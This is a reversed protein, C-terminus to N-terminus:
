GPLLQFWQISWCRYSSPVLMLGIVVSEAKNVNLNGLGSPKPISELLPPAYSGALFTMQFYTKALFEIGDVDQCKIVVNFDTSRTRLDGTMYM